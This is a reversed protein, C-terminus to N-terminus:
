TVSEASGRLGIDEFTPRRLDASPTQLASGQAGRQVRRAPPDRPLAAGGAGAACGGHRGAQTLPRACGLRTVPGGEVVEAPGHRRVVDRLAEHPRVHLFGLLRRGEGTDEDSRAPDDALLGAPGAAAADRPAPGRLLAGVPLLLGLQLLLGRAPDAQS